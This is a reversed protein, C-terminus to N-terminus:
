SSVTPSRRARLEEFLGEYREAVAAPSVWREVFARGAAGM